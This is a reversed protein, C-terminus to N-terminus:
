DWGAIYCSKLESVRLSADPVCGLQIYDSCEVPQDLEVLAIDNRATAAVYHQHVLLRQIHRVKSEPGPQTLDTTGIVVEWTSIGGGRAFCHAVTLVWQSSLLVGSCMHWTGNEWTAQISVIGPWAGPQFSTGGVIHSTGGASAV